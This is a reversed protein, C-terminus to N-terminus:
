VGAVLLVVFHLVDKRLQAFTFNLQRGLPQTRGVMEEM